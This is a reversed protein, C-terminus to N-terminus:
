QVPALVREKEPTFNDEKKTTSSSRDGGGGEEWSPNKRLNVKGRQELRAKTKERRNVKPTNGKQMEYGGRLIKRHTKEGRGGSLKKKLKKTRGTKRQVSDKEQSYKKANQKRTKHNRRFNLGKKERGERGEMHVNAKEKELKQSIRKHGFGKPKGSSKVAGM